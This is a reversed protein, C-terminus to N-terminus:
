TLDNSKLARIMIGLLWATAVVSVFLPVLFPTVGNYVMLFSTTTATM